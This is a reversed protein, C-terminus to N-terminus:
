PKEPFVWSGRLAVIKPEPPLGYEHRLLLYHLLRVGEAGIQGPSLSYYPVNKFRAFDNLLVTRIGATQAITCVECHITLIGDVREQHLWKKLVSADAPSERYVLGKGIVIRQSCYGGLWRGGTRDELAPEIILAPRQCGSRQLMRCGQAAGDFYDMAVAHMPPEHSLAGLSVMAFEDWDWDEFQWPSDSPGFLLGRVGRHFLSRTLKKQHSPNRPLSFRETRYGLLSGERMVGDLVKSSYETGDRDLFALLNGHGSGKSRYAALSSLVPDPKYGSEAIARNVKERTSPSVTLTGRVVRSVTMHSVGALKAVDQLTPRQM